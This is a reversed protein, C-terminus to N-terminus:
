ATVFPGSVRSIVSAAANSYPPSWAISLWRVAASSHPINRTSSPAGTCTVTGYPFDELGCVAVAISGARADPCGTM